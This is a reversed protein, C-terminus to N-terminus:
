CISPLVGTSFIRKVMNELHAAAKETAEKRRQYARCRKDLSKHSDCLRKKADTSSFLAFDMPLCSAGDSWCVTLM